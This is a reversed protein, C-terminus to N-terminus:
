GWLQTSKSNNVGFSLTLMLDAIQYYTL